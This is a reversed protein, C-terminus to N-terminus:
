ALIFTEQELVCCLSATSSSSKIFYKKYFSHGDMQDFGLGKWGWFLQWFYIFNNEMVIPVTFGTKLPWDFFFSWSNTKLVLLRKICTLVKVSHELLANQLVKSRCEAVM